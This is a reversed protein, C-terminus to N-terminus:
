LGTLHLRLPLSVLLFPVIVLLLSPLDPVPFNSPECAHQAPAYSGQM